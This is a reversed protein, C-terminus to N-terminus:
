SCVAMLDDQVNEEEEEESEDEDDDSDDDATDRGTDYKAASNHLASEWGPYGQAAKTCALVVCLEASMFAELLGEGNSNGVVFVFALLLV